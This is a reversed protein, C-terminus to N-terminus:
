QFVDKAKRIVGLAEEPSASPEIGLTRRIEPSQARLFPNFGLEEAITSPVTPRGEKRVQAARARARAVAQNSPEVHAAFRLNSETYEHGCYVRTRGELRALKLLSAHM